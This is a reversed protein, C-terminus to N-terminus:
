NAFPNKAGQVQFHVHCGTSRGAGPTGPQGGMLAIMQGQLVTHGQSVLVSQLHGYMTIVGNPHLVTMFNGAGNNYGYKIRLVQGGAAAYIPNGCGGSSMDVANDWHLSQTIKCPSGIPCIFYSSAVPVQAVVTDASVSKPKIGGPIVMIDGIYIDGEDSLDNFAIIESTEAQYTQAISGLTDDKKVYYLVGSVPLIVLKQGSRLSSSKTLNNAWLITETSIGFEESVSSFTDGSQVIYELIEKSDSDSQYSNEGLSEDSTGVLSGLAQSSLTNSPSAGKLSNQQIITLDFPKAGARQYTLLFQNRQQSFVESVTSLFSINEQQLIPKLIFDAGLSLTCFLIL